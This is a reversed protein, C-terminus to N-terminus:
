KRSCFILLQLDWENENETHNKKKSRRTSSVIDAKEDNMKIWKLENEIEFKISQFESKKLLKKKGFFKFSNMVLFGTGCSCVM